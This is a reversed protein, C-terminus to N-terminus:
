SGYPHKRAGCSITSGALDPPIPLTCQWNSLAQATLIPSKPELTQASRPNASEGSDTAPAVSRNRRQDSHIMRERSHNMRAPSHVTREKPQNIWGASYSTRGQSRIMRELSYGTRERSHIVRELSYNTRERACTGRQAPIPPKDALRRRIAGSDTSPSRRHSM